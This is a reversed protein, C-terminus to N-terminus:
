DARLLTLRYSREAVRALRVSDGGKAGTREFFDRMPGRARFIMKDGAVDTDIAMGPDFRVHITRGAVDKNPGGICDAPLLREASRLYIHGNRVNGDTLPIDAWGLTPEGAEDVPNGPSEREQKTAGSAYSRTSELARRPQTSAKSTATGGLLDGLDVWTVAGSPHEYPIPKAFPQVDGLVWPTTWGNAIAEDIEDAPIRHNPIAERMQRDSLPPLCDTLVATGYVLGSRAKILAIRGRISTARSRMEWTKEGSLILDIWPSRIVLGKM